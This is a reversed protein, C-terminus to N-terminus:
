LMRLNSALTKILVRPCIIVADSNRILFLSSIFYPTQLMAGRVAHQAPPLGSFGSPMSIPTQVFTYRQLVDFYSEPKERILKSAPHGQRMAIVHPSTFLLKSHLNCDLQLFPDQAILFDVLGRRMAEPSGMSAPYIEMKFRKPQEVFNRLQSGIFVSFCNDNAAIRITGCFLDSAQQDERKLDLLDGVNSFIRDLKEGLSRMKATPVMLNSSRIFLPDKFTERLLSLDRSATSVAIGLYAAAKGLSETELLMKLLMLKKLDLSLDSETFAYHSVHEKSM